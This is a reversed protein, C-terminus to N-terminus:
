HWVLEELSLGDMAGIIGSLPSCQAWVNLLLQNRWFAEMCNLRRDRRAYRSKISWHNSSSPLSPFPYFLLVLGQKREETRLGLMQRPRYAQCPPKCKHSRTVNDGNIVTFHSGQRNGTRDSDIATNQRKLWMGGGYYFQTM